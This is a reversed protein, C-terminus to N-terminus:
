ESPPTECVSPSGTRTRARSPHQEEKATHLCSLSLSGPPASGGRGRRGPSLSLSVSLCLSLSLSFRPDDSLIPVICLIVYFILMAGACPHCACTSFHVLNKLGCATCALLCSVCFSLACSRFLSLFFSMFFSRFFSLVSPLLFPILFYSVLFLFVFFSRVALFFQLCFSVVLLISCLRIFYVMNQCLKLTFYCLTVSYSM